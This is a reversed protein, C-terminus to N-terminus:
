QGLLCDPCESSDPLFPYDEISQIDPAPLRPVTPTVDSPQVPTSPVRQPQRQQPQCPVCDLNRYPTGGTVRLREYSSSRNYQSPLQQYGLQSRSRVSVQYQTWESGGRRARIRDMIPGNKEELQATRNLEGFLEVAEKSNPDFQKAEILKGIEGLSEGPVTVPYPAQIVAAPKCAVICAGGVLCIGLVAVCVLGVVLTGVGFHVVHKANM